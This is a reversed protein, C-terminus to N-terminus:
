EYTKERHASAVQVFGTHFYDGVITKNEIPKFEKSEIGLTTKEYPLTTECEGVLEIRMQTEDKELANAIAWFLWPAGHYDINATDKSLGPLEYPFITEPRIGKQWQRASTKIAELQGQEFRKMLISINFTFRDWDFLKNELLFNVRQIFTETLLATHEKELRIRTLFLAQVRHYNLYEDGREDLLHDM